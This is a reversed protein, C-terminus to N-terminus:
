MARRHAALLTAVADDASRAGAAVRELQETAETGLSRGELLTTAIAFSVAAEGTDPVSAYFARMESTSIERNSRADATLSGRAERWPAERHTMARLEEASHGGFRTVVVEILSRSRSSLREALGSPWQRVKTRGKHQDFLRRIVPGDVWAEIPEDFLAVDHEVLHQAQGYYALKQLKMTTVPEGPYQHECELLLAAAVDDVSEM